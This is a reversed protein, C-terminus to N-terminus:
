GDQFEAGQQGHLRVTKEGKGGRHHPHAKCQGCQPQHQQNGPERGLSSSVNTLASERKELTNERAKPKRWRRSLVINIFWLESSVERKSSGTM